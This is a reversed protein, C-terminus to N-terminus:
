LLVWERELELDLVRDSLESLTNENPQPKSAEAELKEMVADLEAQIEGVKRM